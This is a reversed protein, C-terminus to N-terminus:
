SQEIADFPRKTSKKDDPRGTRTAQYALDVAVQRGYPVWRHDDLACGLVAAALAAILPPCVANGAMRYQEKLFARDGQIESSKPPLEYSNPFGMLRLCERPSFRRPNTNSTSTTTTYSASVPVLQSHGRAISNGYHSVLTDCVTNPWAMHAPRWQRGKNLQDLQDDSIPLLDREMTSLEQSTYDIVDYAKLQLDPVYPFQFTCHESSPDPTTNSSASVDDQREQKLFGVLFLRKRSTATLCRANCVEFTVDYGAGELAHKIAQFTDKMALLGPVNELLFAKPQIVKLLRVIELFLGGAKPCDIGPQDGLTSFPQCPFGGVLLDVPTTTPLQHNQISYIDGLLPAQPFNHQYLRQCATDIESALLCTGGLADLAVAFGGMGAFLDVYAFSAKSPKEIKHTTTNLQRDPHIRADFYPPDRVARNSPIFPKWVFEVGEEQLLKNLESYCIQTAQQLVHNKSLVPIGIKYADSGDNIAHKHTRSGFRGQLHFPRFVCQSAVLTAYSSKALKKPVLIAWEEKPDVTPDDVASNLQSLEDSSSM